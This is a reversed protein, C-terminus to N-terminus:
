NLRIPEDELSSSSIIQHAMLGLDYINIHLGASKIYGDKFNLSNVNFLM